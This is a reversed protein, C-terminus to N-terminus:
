WEINEECEDLPTSMGKLISEKMNPISMLYLTEQLANWDELSVLVADNKKGTIMIPTHNSNTEEVLKFINERAKSISISKEIM